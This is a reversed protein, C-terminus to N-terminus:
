FNMKLETGYWKTNLLEVDGTKQNRRKEGWRKREGGRDEIDKNQTIIVWNSDSSLGQNVNLGHHCPM